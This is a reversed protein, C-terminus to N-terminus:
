RPFTLSFAAEVAHDEHPDVPQTGDGDAHPAAAPAPAPLESWTATVARAGPPLDPAQIYREEGPHERMTGDVLTWGDAATAPLAASFLFTQGFAPDLVAHGVPELRLEGANSRLKLRSAIAQAAADFRALSEADSIRGDGDADAHDLELLAADETIQRRYSLWVRGDVVWMSVTRDVDAVASDHATAAGGGLLLAGCALVRLCAGSIRTRM